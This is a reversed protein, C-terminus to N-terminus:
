ANDWFHPLNRNNYKGHMIFPNPCHHSHIGYIWVHMWVATTNFLSSSCYDALFFKFVVNIQALHWSQAVPYPYRKLWCSSLVLGQLLVSRCWCLGGTLTHLHTNTHGGPVGLENEDRQGDSIMKEILIKGMNQLRGELLWIVSVSLTYNWLLYDFNNPLFVLCEINAAEWM